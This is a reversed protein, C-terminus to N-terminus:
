LFADKVDPAQLVTYAWIGIPMGILCCCPSTCPIISLVAATMALSYNRLRAMQVAGIIVITGSIVVTACGLILGATYAQMVNAERGPMRRQAAKEQVAVLDGLNKLNYPLSVLTIIMHASALSILFLAPLYVRSFARSRLSELGVSRRRKKGVRRRREAAEKTDEAQSYDEKERPPEAEGSDAPIPLAQPLDEISEWPIPITKGCGPCRASKGAAEDPVQLLKGCTSCRFRISM